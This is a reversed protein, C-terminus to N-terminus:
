VHLGSVTTSIPLLELVTRIEGFVIESQQLRDKRNTMWCNPLEGNANTFDLSPVVFEVLLHDPTFRCRWLSALILLGIFLDELFDM